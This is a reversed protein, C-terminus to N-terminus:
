AEDEPEIRALYTTRPRTGLEELLAYNRPSARRNAAASGADALNGFTIASTPCAQQCATKVEGDRVERGEIDAQVKAGEIRQICYTCKEMVGRGRVTVDPNRQAEISPAADSTYDFWNFRRVKYPCFSSCTRTGICRNYVMLNLGDPSHVTAHVPCGMECPAQECHMCPIPQFMTGPNEPAGTYLRSVRLWHMERGEYVQKKGVVPVNNEAQCATICANCGICLDTDIVMGWAPEGEKWRPYISEGGGESRYAADAAPVTPVAEKGELRHHTQTTAVVATGPVALLTGAATWPAAATRLKYADYGIGEGVRGVSRRGYGLYVTAVGDPQGPMVWVPGTVSRGGSEVEIMSVRNSSPEGSGGIGHKRATAPSIAIVNDWTVKTLPKPLEQLWGNNAGSGDRITPDSRIVIEIGAAPKQLRIPIQRPSVAAPKAATGPVLGTKLAANWADEDAVKGAWYQRVITRADPPQGDSTFGALITHPSRTDYLPQIVPQIISAVGDVSRADSWDELAHPLPLHWGSVAATEDFHLGTHVTLPVRKALAAFDVDAPGSYAPNAGLTFLATVQGAEMDRALDLFSGDPVLAVPERYEVAANGLRQNAIAALAHLEPPSHRGVTLLARGRNSLLATAASNAWGFEEPTLGTVSGGIGLKAAIAAALLPMRSPAVGIRHQANAGTLTPTPEAMYLRIREANPADGRRQAWGAANVVQAPGAGLFDDDLSVVVRAKELRLLPQVAGIAETVPDAGYGTLPDFLHVRLNPLAAKLKEIQDILTPSTTPAILLRLGAGGNAQWAPVWRQMQGDFDAWDAANGRLLPSQSRDPDYLDLLAAQALYSTAGRSAPHEPNGELKIPRGAVCTALVPQAFGDVLVATAYHDLRGNEFGPPRNVFPVVEDSKAPKCGTVGALALSAGMVRLLERRDVRAMEFLSPFEAKITEAFSESGAWEELSQWWSRGTPNPRPATM